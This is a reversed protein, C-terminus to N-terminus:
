IYPYWLYDSARMNEMTRTTDAPKYEPGDQIEQRTLDVRVSEDAWNVDAFRQPSVLVKRGPWWNKTDVVVFRIIWGDTDVLFDEVHGIDGDKAHLYYGSVAETSRLHPDGHSREPAGPMEKPPVTAPDVPTVPVGALPAYVTGGWYPQWGYYTYLDSEHQRSVPADTDVAPSDEVQQRTLDVPFQRRTEDPAGFASPPLLVQRDSLWGGTNIVAWRITWEQDDFLFDNISGISGDRTEITYGNLDSANWLM